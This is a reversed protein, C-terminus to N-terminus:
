AKIFNLYKTITDNKNHHCKNDNNYYWFYSYYDWIESPNQKNPLTDKIRSYYISAMATAFRLDYIMRDETPMRSLNFNHVLSILLNTKFAIYNQWLDIYTQSDMLFIGFHNKNKIFTGANSEAVCTFLLLAEMNDSYLVLDYLTPKIILNSFQIYDIM